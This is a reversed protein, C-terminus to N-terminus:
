MSQGLYELIKTNVLKTKSDNQIPARKKKEPDLPNSSSAQFALLNGFFTELSVALTCTDMTEQHFISTGVKRRELAILHQHTSPATLQDFGKVLMPYECSKHHNSHLQFRAHHRKDMSDIHFSM